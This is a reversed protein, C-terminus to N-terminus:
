LEYENVNQNNTQRIWSIWLCYSDGSIHNSRKWSWIICVFIRAIKKEM